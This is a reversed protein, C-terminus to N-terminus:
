HRQASRGGIRLAARVAIQRHQLRTEGGFPVTLIIFDISERVVVQKRTGAYGLRTVFTLCILKRRRSTYM